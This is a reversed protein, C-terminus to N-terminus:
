LHTIILEFHNEDNQKLVVSFMNQELYRVIDQLASKETLTIILGQNPLLKAVHRKTLLLSMPCRELTLDLHQTEM